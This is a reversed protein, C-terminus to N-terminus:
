SSVILKDHNLFFFKVLLPPDQIKKTPPALYKHFIDFLKLFKAFNDVLAITWKNSYLMPYPQELGSSFM